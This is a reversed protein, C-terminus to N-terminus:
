SSSSADEEGQPIHKMSRLYVPSPSRYSRDHMMMSPLASPVNQLLSPKPDNDQREESGELIINRATESYSLRSLLAEFRSTASELISAAGSMSQVAQRSTDMIFSDHESLTTKVISALDDHNKSYSTIQEELKKVHDDLCAQLQNLENERGSNVDTQVLTFHKQLADPFSALVKNLLIKSEVGTQESSQLMRTMSAMKADNIKHSVELKDIKSHLGRIDDISILMPEITVAIAEAIECAQGSLIEKGWRDFRGKMAADARQNANMLDSMQTSLQELVTAISSTCEGIVQLLKEDTSGITAAKFINDQKFM